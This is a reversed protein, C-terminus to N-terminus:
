TCSQLGVSEVHTYMLPSAPKIERGQSQKCAGVRRCLQRWVQFGDHSHSLRAAAFPPMCGGGRGADEALGREHDAWNNGDDLPALFDGAVRGGARQLHGEAIRM